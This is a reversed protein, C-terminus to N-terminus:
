GAVHYAREVHRITSLGTLTKGLWVGPEACVLLCEPTAGIAGTRASGRVLGSERALHEAMALFGGYGAIIRRAGFETSYRGRLVAMPDIGHLRWFVDCAATCCDAKGWEWPRDMVDLAIAMVGAM